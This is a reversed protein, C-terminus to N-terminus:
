EASIVGSKKLVVAVDHTVFELSSVVDHNIERSSLIELAGIFVDQWKIPIAVQLCAIPQFPNQELNTMLPKGLSLSKGVLSNDGIRRALRKKRSTGARYIAAQKSTDLICIDVSLVDFEKAILDVIRELIQDESHSQQTLLVLQTQVALYAESSNKHPEDQSM